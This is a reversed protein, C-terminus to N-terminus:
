SPHEDDDPGLVVLPAAVDQSREAYVALLSGPLRGPPSGPLRGPPSGPLRGPLSGPLRGPPSGPLRGPPSGSIVAFPRGREREPHGEFASGAALDSVPLAQGNMVRRAVEPTVTVGEMGADSVLAVAPPIVARGRLEELKELSLARDVDIGGIAVRRLRRLHAPCGLKTGLDEALVRVYTGASCTVSLKAVIGAPYGDGELVEAPSLACEYVTVERAEREVTLGERALEHLRRGQIRRASVMPPVQLFTGTFFRAAEALDASSLSGPDGTLLVEGTDDGTTTSTKFVVEAEYRKPLETFFRLLRTARGIGVVLLGTAPPDLTGSHGVQRTGLIRRVRAVVDHSTWGAPKDVYVFGASRGKVVPSRYSDVVGDSYSRRAPEDSSPADPARTGPAPADGGPEDEGPTGEAPAGALDEGLGESASGALRRLVMDLRQTALVAPDAAFALVPTHQMRVSSALRRQIETRYEEELLLRTRDPLKGIFVTARRLDKSMEVDTVTLMGLREDVDAIRELEEAVVERVLEGVRVSRPYSLSRGSPVRRSM